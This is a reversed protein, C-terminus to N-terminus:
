PFCPYGQCRPLLWLLRYWFDHHSFKMRSRNQFDTNGKLPILLGAPLLSGAYRLSRCVLPPSTSAKPGTTLIGYLGYPDPGMGMYIGYLIGIGRDPGFTHLLVAWVRYLKAWFAMKPLDLYIRTNSPSNQGQGFHARRCRRATIRWVVSFSLSSTHLCRPWCVNTDM